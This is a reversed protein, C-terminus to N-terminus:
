RSGPRESAASMLPLFGSSRKRIPRRRAMASATTTPAPVSRSSRLCTQVGCCMKGLAAPSYAASRSRRPFGGSGAVTKTEADPSISRESGAKLIGAKRTSTRVVARPAAASPRPAGSCTATRASPSRSRRSMRATSRLTAASVPADSMRLSPPGCSM